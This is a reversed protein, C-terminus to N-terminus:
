SAEVAPTRRRTATLWAIAIVTLVVFPLFLLNLTAWGVQNHLLGSAASAVTVSGFLIFDNAAQVLAKESPWYTETLLATGGVYLFNWALGLLVLGSWFQM